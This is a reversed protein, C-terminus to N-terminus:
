AAEFSLGQGFEVVIGNCSYFSIGKFIVWGFRRRRRWRWRGKGFSVIVLSAKSPVEFYEIATDGFSISLMFRSRDDEIFLPYHAIVKQSQCWRKSNIVAMSPVTSQSGICLPVALIMKMGSIPAAGVM